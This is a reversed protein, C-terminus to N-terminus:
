KKNFLCSHLEKFSNCNFLIEPEISLNHEEDFHSITLLATMSDWEELDLYSTKPTLSKINTEVFISSFENIFQDISM